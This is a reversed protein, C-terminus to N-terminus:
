KFVYDPETEPMTKFEGAWVKIDLDDIITSRELDDEEDEVLGDAIEEAAANGANEADAAEMVFHDSGHYRHSWFISFKQAM